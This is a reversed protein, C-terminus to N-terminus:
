FPVGGRGRPDQIGLRWPKGDRLGSVYLDGGAQVMFNEIRRARLMEAARDIAYGKGIGGLHARMGPKTLYATGAAEDVILSRYDILPLLSRVRDMDPVRNDQDHDFRWLGSLVGWTVDFKGGTWESVRRATALVRRVDGSVPVPHDGAAENLRTIDSGPKWVSMLANLRDFEAFVADFADAASAADATWASLQLESGMAIRARTVLTPTAAGRTGCAAVCVVVACSPLAWRLLTAVRM